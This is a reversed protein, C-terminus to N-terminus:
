IIDGFQAYYYSVLETYGGILTRNGNEVLYICPWTSWEPSKDNNVTFSEKKKRLLEKAALCYPCSAKSHVEFYRDM